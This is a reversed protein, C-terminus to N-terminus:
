LVITPHYIEILHYIGNTRINLAPFHPLFDNGLLFCMFIYDTVRINKDAPDYNGMEQFISNSLGLIDM